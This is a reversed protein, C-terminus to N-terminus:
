KTKQSMRLKLENIESKTNKIQETFFCSVIAPFISVIMAATCYAAYAYYDDEKEPYFNAAATFGATSAATFCLPLFAVAKKIQLKRLESKLQKMAQQNEFSTNKESMKKGKYQKKCPFIYCM